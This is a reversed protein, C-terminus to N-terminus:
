YNGISLSHDLFSINPLVDCHSHTYVGLIISFNSVSGDRTSNRTSSYIDDYCFVNNTRASQRFVAAGAGLGQFFRFILFLGYDNASISIISALGFITLGLLSTKKRGISDSIPGFVIQGVSLGLFVITITWHLHKPNVNYQSKIISLAPLITDISLAGLAMLSAVLLISKIGSM